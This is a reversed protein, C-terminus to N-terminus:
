HLLLHEVDMQIGSRAHDLLKTPLL